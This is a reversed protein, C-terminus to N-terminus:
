MAPLMSAYKQIKETGLADNYNTQYNNTSLRFGVEYFYYNCSDRIAESVNVDGHTGGKSFIWCKPRNSVNEYQGLDKIKEGLTIYGEALGATAVVMKFTSGPATGQQTAYNYQPLSKDTQLSNFYEADVTNALRNSDYGPYSVLALVEGTRTDTVM